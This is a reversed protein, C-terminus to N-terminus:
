PTVLGAMIAADFAEPELDPGLTSAGPEGLLDVLELDRADPEGADEVPSTAYMAELPTMPGM